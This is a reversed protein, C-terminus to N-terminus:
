YCKAIETTERERENLTTKELAHMLFPILFAGVVCPFNSSNLIINTQLHLRQSFSTYILGNIFMLSDKM